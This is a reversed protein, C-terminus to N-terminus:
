KSNSIRNLGVWKAKGLPSKILAKNGNIVIVNWIHKGVKIPQGIYIEKAKMECDLYSVVWRSNSQRNQKELKDMKLYNLIIRHFKTITHWDKVPLKKLQKFYEKTLPLRM